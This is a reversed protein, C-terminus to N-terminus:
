AGVEDLTRKVLDIVEPDGMEAAIAEAEERISGVVEDEGARKNALAVDAATLQPLVRVARAVKAVQDRWAAVADPTMGEPPQLRVFAGAVITLPLDPSELTVFRSSDEVRVM